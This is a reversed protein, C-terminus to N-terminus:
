WSNQGGAEVWLEVGEHTLQICYWPYTGIGGKERRLHLWSPKASLIVMCHAVLWERQLVSGMDKSICQWIKESKFAVLWLLSRLMHKDVGMM